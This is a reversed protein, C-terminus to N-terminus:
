ISYSRTVLSNNNFMVNGKFTKKNILNNIATATKLMTKMKIRAFTITCTKLRIELIKILEKKMELNLIRKLISFNLLFKAKHIRLSAEVKIKLGLFKIQIRLIWSKSKNKMLEVSM